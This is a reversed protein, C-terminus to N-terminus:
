RKIIRRITNNKRTEKKEEEERENLEHSVAPRLYSQSQARYIVPFFGGGGERGGEEKGQVISRRGMVSLMSALRIEGGRKEERVEQGICFASRKLSRISLVVNHGRDSAQKEGGKRGKGRDGGSRKRCCRSSLMLSRSQSM